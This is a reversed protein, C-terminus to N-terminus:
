IAEQEHEPSYFVPLSSNRILRTSQKSHFKYLEIDGKRKARNRMRYHYKKKDENSMNEYEERTPTLGYVPKKDDYKSSAFTSLQSKNEIRKMMRIHFKKEEGDTKKSMGVHYNYKRNDALTEYVEQSLETYPMPNGQPTMQGKHKRRHTELELSYFDQLNGRIVRDRQRQHFRVLEQLEVMEKYMPSEENTVNYTRQLVRWRGRYATTQGEHWRRRDELSAREYEEANRIDVRKLIAMWNM